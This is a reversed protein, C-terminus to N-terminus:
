RLEGACRFGFNSGREAPESAVRYSVRVVGPINSWSGGRMVKMPGDGPGQPDDPPSNKYYNSNYWDSTWEWVSGLMDYLGWANPEKSAVIATGTTKGDAYVAIKDIEGYRENTNGARAAYEWEAETPLRMGVAKCYKDADYWSVSEVPLDAAKFRSPNPVKMVKAYAAQPVETQGIWFGKAIRVRHQTEDGPCPSGSCGMQFEGSPIYKYKL